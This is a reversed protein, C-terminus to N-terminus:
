QCRYGVYRYRKGMRQNRENILRSAEDPTLRGIIWTYKRWEETCDLDVLYVHIM